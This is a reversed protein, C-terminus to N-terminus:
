IKLSSYVYVKASVVMSCISCCFKTEMPASTSTGERGKSVFSAFHDTGQGHCKSLWVMGHFPTKIPPHTLPQIKFTISTGITHIHCLASERTPSCLAFVPVMIIITTVKILIFLINMRAGLTVTNPNRSRVWNPHLLWSQSIEHKM